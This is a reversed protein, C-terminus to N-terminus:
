RKEVSKERLKLFLILWSAIQYVGILGTLFISLLIVFLATFIIGFWFSVKGFFYLSLFNFIRLPYTFTGSESFISLIFTYLFFILFLIFSMILTKLFNEKLFLFSDKTAPLFKKNEIIIFFITYRLLFLLIISILSFFIYFIVFNLNLNKFFFIVLLIWFFLLFCGVFFKLLFIKGSLKLSEKGAEKLSEKKRIRKILNILLVESFISLFTLFLFILLIILIFFPNIKEELTFEKLRFEYFLTFFVPLSFIFLFESTPIFFLTSIFGLFWLGPNRWSIKFSEKLVEGIM